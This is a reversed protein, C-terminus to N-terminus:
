LNLPNKIEVFHMKIKEFKLFDVRNEAEEEANM